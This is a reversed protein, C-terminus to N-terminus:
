PYVTLSISSPEIPTYPMGFAGQFTYGNAKTVTATGCPTNGGASAILTRNSSCFGGLVGTVVEYVAMTLSVGMTQKNYPLFGGGGGYVPDGHLVSIELSAPLYWAEYNRVQGRNDIVSYGGGLFGGSYLYAGPVKRCRGDPGIEVFTGAAPFTYPNFYVGSVGPICRFSSYNCVQQGIPACPILKGIVYSGSFASWPYGGVSVEAVHTDSPMTMSGSSECCSRCGRPPAVYVISQLVTWGDSEACRIRLTYTGSEPSYISGSEANSVLVGDRLLEVAFPNGSTTWRIECNGIISISGFCGECGCEQRCGPNLRGLGM